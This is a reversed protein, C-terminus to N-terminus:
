RLQEYFATRIKILWENILTKDPQEPLSSNAFAKKIQALQTDAKEVLAEYTFEGSRIRLLAARNPRHVIIQQQEAIELAMDLLRFTHMMNKADYNKGHAITNQYRADNRKAVWDWYARYDKCYKKYGDKNFSLTTIPSLGKPINSLSVDNATKKQVIGKFGLGKAGQTAMGQEDYYLGYTNPMNAINVLGCYNQQWHRAALWQAVKKSGQGDIVYCFDLVTKREKGMPNRIKKNLGRAKKIQAAAYTAFTHECAKSLFLSPSLNAMLPHQYLLCHKPTNLLELLNPNSKALLEMFRKLEYFVVDNNADNIQPIYDLSYYHHKPLIFVGKIDTDSSPLDLGYAKSGSICELLILQQNRLNQLTM